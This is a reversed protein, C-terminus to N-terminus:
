RKLHARYWSLTKNLGDVLSHRCRWGLVRNAKRSSLYQKDIEGKIKHKSLIKPKLNNKGSLKLILYVLRLVSIPKGAGFNFAEGKVKNKNLYLARALLLYARVADDIYIYDRLPTGDSRIIPDTNNLAARITDPIIRSFNIDGPGYINACRTIAAALDYTHAYTRTLIDACAKSADYPHLAQLSAEETYPLKKHEGYAKDSSAVVIATHRSYLRAAELTNWTGEINTKFTPTPSKNAKNVIAQAAIHFCIDPKYQRFIRQVFAFNIINGKIIKLNKYKKKKLALALFSAPIEEKIIGIVRAGKELLAVTLHSALFGNAGTIVVKKAKWFNVM